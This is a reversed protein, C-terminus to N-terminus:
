YTVPFASTAKEFPQRAVRSDVRVLSCNYYRIGTINTGDSVSLRQHNFVASALARLRFKNYCLPAVDRLFALVGVRYHRLM